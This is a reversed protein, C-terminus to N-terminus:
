RKFTRDNIRVKVPVSGSSRTDKTSGLGRSDPSTTVRESSCIMSKQRSSGTQTLTVTSPSGSSPSSHMSVTVYQMSLVLGGEGEGVSVGVGPGVGPGVGEGESSGDGEGVLRGVGPGVGPGVGEGLSLGESVGEAEGLAVGDELGEWDGLSEGVILGVVAAGLPEGM